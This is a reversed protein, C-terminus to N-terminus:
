LVEEKNNGINCGGSVALLVQSPLYFFWALNFNPYLIQYLIATDAVPIYTSAMIQLGIVTDCLLFLVLGIPFCKNDAFQTFGEIINMILNAYYCLSILALADANERLILATITLATASLCIRAMLLAWHFRRTQLHIAYMTQTGLFFVMGLLRQQETCLVLFFDAALTFCLAAVIFHNARKAYIASFILCFAISAFMYWKNNYAMILLYLVAEITLFIALLMNRRKRLM